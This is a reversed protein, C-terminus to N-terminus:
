QEKRERTERGLNWGVEEKYTGGEGQNEGIAYVGKGENKVM